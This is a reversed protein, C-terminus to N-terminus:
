AAMQSAGRRRSMSKGLHAVADPPLVRRALPLMEREEFRMHQECGEEFRAALEETLGGERGEAMAALRPRMDSWRGEFKKHDARLQFLLARVANLELAPAFHEIVPFLDDEEDDRHNAATTGFFRLLFAAVDRAEADTGKFRVHAALKRLLLLQRRIRGHCSEIIDLPHDFDAAPSPFLASDMCGMMPTAAPAAKIHIL